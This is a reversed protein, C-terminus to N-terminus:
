LKKAIIFGRWQGKPKEYVIEFGLSKLQQLMETHTFRNALPHHLLRSFLPHTLFPRYYEEIYLTGDRKLVKHVERLAHQWNHIHHLVGFNFVADYSFPMAPINGATGVWLRAEINKHALKKQARAIQDPDLDFGELVLPSMKKHILYLGVGRGCGIELIKANPPLPANKRFQRTIVRVQMMQRLPSNVFLKEVWNLKM